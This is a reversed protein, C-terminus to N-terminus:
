AMFQIVSDILSVCEMAAERLLLQSDSDTRRHVVERVSEIHPRISNPLLSRSQNDKVCISSRIVRTVGIVAARKTESVFSPTDIAGGLIDLLVPCVNVLQSFATQDNTQIVDLAAPWASVALYTVTERIGTMEGGGDTSSMKLRKSPESSPEIDMPTPESDKPQLQPALANFVKLFVTTNGTAPTVAFIPLLERLANLAVLRYDDQKKTCQTLLKDLTKTLLAPDEQFVTVCTSVLNEVAVLLQQKEPYIQGGLAQLLEPMVTKIHLNLASGATRVLRDLAIGVQQKSSHSSLQLILNMEAIIEKCYMRILQSGGEEDADGCVSEWVNQWVSQIKKNPDHIALFTRPIVIDLSDSVPSANKNKTLEALVQGAILRRDDRESQETIDPALELTFLTQLNERVDKERAFKLLQALAKAYASRVASSPDTLSASLAKALKPIHSKLLTPKEISLMVAFQATGVRTPLGTGKRILQILKPVLQAVADEDVMQRCAQLTDSLDSMKSAAVRKQEIEETSMNLKEAHMQLYSWAESEHSALSELLVGIVDALHPRLTVGSVKAIERLLGISLARVEPLRDMMGTELLLPCIVSVATSAESTKQISVDCLRISVSKLTKMLKEAAKRTTEKIDDMLRFATIWISSIYSGVEAWSKGVLLDSLALTAAERVRWLRSTVSEMMEDMIPKWHEQVAVRSEPVLSIWMKEMAERVRPNPDYTYRFLKPILQHLQDAIRKDMASIEGLGMAASQLLAWQSNHRSVSLMQYILDPKGMENAVACLDQYTQLGAGDGETNTNGTLNLSDDQSASAMPNRGTSLTQVLANVLVEKTSEDGLAYVVSLGKSACDQIFDKKDTLQRLFCSQIDQLCSQVPTKRGNDKVVVLMWICAARRAQLNKSTSSVELLRRVVADLTAEHRQCVLSLAEGVSFLVQEEQRQTFDLLQNVLRERMEPSEGSALRAAAMALKDLLWMDATSTMQKKLVNTVADRSANPLAGAESSLPLPLLRHEGLFGLGEWAGGIVLSQTSELRDILRACSKICTEHQLMPEPLSALIRGIAILCGHHQELSSVSATASETMSLLSSLTVLVTDTSLQTTLLGLCEAATERVFRDSSGLLNTVINVPLWSVAMGCQISWRIWQRIQSLSVSHTEKGALPDLALLLLNQYALRVNDSLTQVFSSPNSPDVQKSDTQLCTDLVKLIEQLTVATFPPAQQGIGFGLASVSAAQKAHTIRQEILTTMDSFSPLPGETLELARRSEERVSLTTDSTMKLCLWVRLPDSSSLCMRAWQIVALRVTSDDRDSYSLLLDRLQGYLDASVDKYAARLLALGEQVWVKENEVRAYSAQQLQDFMLRVVRVDGKFLQPQVTALQGIASFSFGRVESADQNSEIVKLFGSLLIPAMPALAQVSGQKLVWVAFHMGKAQLKSNAHSGFLCEFIVQIASPFTNAAVISRCLQGVLKIRLPVSAPVRKDDVSVSPDTTGLFLTYLRNVVQQNELNAHDVKKLALEGVDSVANYPDSAAIALALLVDVAAFVNCSLFRVLSTKYASVEEPKMTKCKTAWAQQLKLSLGPSVTDTQRYLLFDEALSLFVTQDASHSVFTFQAGVITPDLPAKSASLGKLALCFMTIQQAPLLAGLGLLFAPALAFLKDAPLRNAGMEVYVLSLNKVLMTCEPLQWLSLLQEVPLQLQPM